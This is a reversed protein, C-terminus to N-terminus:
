FIKNEHFLILLVFYLYLLSSELLSREEYKRTHTHSDLYAIHKM